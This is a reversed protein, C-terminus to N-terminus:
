IEADRVTLVLIQLNDVNYEYGMLEKIHKDKEQM